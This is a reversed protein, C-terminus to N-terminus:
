IRAIYGPPVKNVVNGDGDYRTFVVVKDKDIITETTTKDRNNDGGAKKSTDNGVDEVPRENITKNMAEKYHVESAMPANNQQNNSNAIPEIIM